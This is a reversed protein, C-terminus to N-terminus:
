DIINDEISWSVQFNLYHRYKRRPPKIYSAKIVLYKRDVVDLGDEAVKELERYTDFGFLYQRTSVINLSASYDHLEDKLRWIYQIVGREIDGFSQCALDGFHYYSKKFHYSLNFLIKSLEEISANRRREIKKEEQKELLKRIDTEYEYQTINKDFAYFDYKDLNDHFSRLDDIEENCYDNLEQPFSPLTIMGSTEWVAKKLHFEEEEEYTALRWEPAVHSTKSVYYIREDPDLYKLFGNNCSKVYFM